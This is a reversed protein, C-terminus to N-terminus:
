CFYISVYFFLGNINMKEIYDIGKQFGHELQIIHLVM